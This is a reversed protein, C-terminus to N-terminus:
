SFVPGWIAHNDVRRESGIGSPCGDSGFLVRGGTRFSFRALQSMASAIGELVRIRHARNTDSDSSGLRHGFWVDYLPLGTIFSMIIYPCRLPNRTTASFDLVEPIPITTERKLLRM